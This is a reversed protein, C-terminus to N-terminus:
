PNHSASAQVMMEPESSSEESEEEEEGDDDEDDSEDDDEDDDDEGGGGGDEDDDIESEEEEEGDDEDDEGVDEVEDEDDDFDDNQQGGKVGGMVKVLGAAGLGTKPLQIHTTPRPAASTNNSLGGLPDEIPEEEEEEEEDDISEEEDESVEARMKKEEMYVRRVTANMKLFEQEEMKYRREGCRKMSTLIMIVDRKSLHKDLQETLRWNKEAPDYRFKAGKMRMGTTYVILIKYLDYGLKSHHNKIVVDTNPEIDDFFNVSHREHIHIKLRETDNYAKGCHPCKYCKERYKRPSGDGNLLSIDVEGGGSFLALNGLAAANLAAIKGANQRKKADIQAALNKLSSMDDGVNVVMPSASASAASQKSSLMALNKLEMLASNLSAPNGAHGLAGGGSKRLKVSEPHLSKKHHYLSAYSSYFKGCLDCRHTKDAIAKPETATPGVPAQAARRATLNFWEPHNNRKHIWFGGTSTYTKPCLPCKIGGGPLKIPQLERLEKLSMNATSRGPTSPGAPSGGAQSLSSM